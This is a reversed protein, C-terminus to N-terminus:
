NSVDAKIPIASICYNDSEISFRSNHLIDEGEVFAFLHGLRWPQGVPKGDDGIVVYIIEYCDANQCAFRLENDSLSFVIDTNKSAKVEVYQIIGNEDTYKIDYGCTDDGKIIRNAKQANGSIWRADPYIASLEKFVIAEGVVGEEQQKRETSESHVRKIHKKTKGNHSLNLERNISETAISSLGNAPINFIEGVLDSISPLPDKAEQLTSPEESKMLEDKKGFVLYADIKSKSFQKIITAWVDESIEAKKTEYLEAFETESYNELVDFSVGIEHEFLSDIDLSVSNEITPELFEYEELHQDYLEVCQEDDKFEDMLYAQYRLQFSAMKEKLKRKWYKTIDIPHAAISNFKILDINLQTFVTIIFGANGLDSLDDFNIGSDFDASFGLLDMIKDATDEESEPLKMIGAITMWFEDRLNVETDFRKRAETLLELNEDGKDIRMKAERVRMNERFLDRYFEKDENVDLIATILEAVADGFELVRKLEDFSIAKQPVCIYATNSKRLYVTEYEGLQTSQVTKDFIYRISIKSCLVIKSSKLRRFDISSNKLEMRCAYVFPLFRLYEKKFEEDLPHITPEGDPEINECKLPSVGFLKKIKEEGSRSDADLMSFKKLIEESFVKKDAYRAESIAAYQKIGNKKVLVSGTAIFKNYALNGKQYEEPSLGERIMKRYLMKGKNCGPDLEPLRLLSTYIVSKELEQFTDAIGLRSLIADIDKKCNRGVVDKLYAYDIAPVIIYPDLGNDEFCCQTPIEKLGTANPVWKIKSLYYRVYSKIREPTVKRKDQKYAPWGEISSFINKEETECQLRIKIDDDILFWALIDNFNARELIIDFHEFYGVCVSTINSFESRNYYYGDRQVYLPYCVGVFNDKEENELTKQILRPYRSVGLWELFGIITVPDKCSLGLEDFSVFNNSFLSVLREGLENGYERGIYCDRAFRIEGDRCIIKVRVDSIQQRDEQDYYGWLWNLIDSCIEKSTIKEEEQSVVGRLLRPFSYEELNYRALTQALGRRNNGIGLEDALYKEMEPSLFKIDVWSPLEIVQEETPLPYVKSTDIISNGNREVLLHPFISSSTIYRYEKNILVALIAKQEISYDSLSDNLLGCFDEYSYFGIGLDNKLYKKIGVDDTAKLLNSFVKPNLVSSFREDSYKPAEAISVYEGSISPLIKKERAKEKLIIDFKFVSSLIYDIESTIILKLPDYNCGHQSESISVATQVLFDAFIPILQQNVYSQKQLSNRDSTLDFTGHILAPFGLKVDTKFYSYLVEGQHRDDPDYAIIFEYDKEKGNEDFVIGRKKYLTWSACEEAGTNKDITEVIVENGEVIKFFEKNYNNCHIEIKKLNPLFVLEEFQLSTIQSEIVNALEEKCEIIISTSFGPILQSKSLVHPCTLTAIPCEDLTLARIEPVLEPKEKLISKLFESAYEKSFRITFDKSAVTVSKAWSLISRFGLGKCGIKNAHIRKPSANPYLLSKVGRFTFPNGTNSVSLTKGDFTILVEGSSNASEDDANQLLEFMQRGEYDKSLSCERNYGSVIEEASDLYKRRIKELEEQIEKYMKEGRASSDECM